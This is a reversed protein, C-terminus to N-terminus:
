FYYILSALLRHQRIDESADIGQFIARNVSNGWRLQWAIDFNYNGIQLGSGVSVTYFDDVNDVAPAPDYGLGFRLPVLLNERVLLYECGVRLTFTDKLKGADDTQGSIPNIDRGEEKLNYESWQTWTLDISATLPDAPRWALGGGIIMPFELETKSNRRSSSRSLRAGTISSREEETRVFDREIDLHFSPKVVLGINWNESIRYIGGITASYGKEVTLEEETIEVFTSVDGFNPRFFTGISRQKKDYSSDGTISDNWINLSVGISLNDTVDIGYAPILASFAGDQDFEISLRQGFTSSTPAPFVVPFDISKDFRYLKLYNLSIVMNTHFFFPIVLSAYNLDELRLGNTSSAEPNSSSFLDQDFWVAEGAISIEPTELQLLGAPNWSAATADDAIAIFANGQGMARAGSGVPNISTGIEVPSDQAYGAM